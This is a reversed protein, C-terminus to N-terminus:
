SWIFSRQVVNGTEWICRNCVCLIDFNTIHIFIYWVKANEKTNEKVDVITSEEGEGFKELIVKVKNDHTELTLAVKNGKQSELDKKKGISRWYYQWKTM